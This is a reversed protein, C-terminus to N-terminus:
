RNLRTGDASRVVNHGNMAIYSCKGRNLRLGFQMSISEVAWLIRNAAYTNSARLVSDDAYYIRDCSVGLVIEVM